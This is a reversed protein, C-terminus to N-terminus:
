RIPPPAARSGSAVVVARRAKLAVGDVEVRDAALIAAAGRLLSAGGDTIAKAPNSDDLDRAMYL